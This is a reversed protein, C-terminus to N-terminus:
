SFSEACHLVLRAYAYRLDRAGIAAAGGDVELNRDEFGSGMVFDGEVVVVLVAVQSLDELGDGGVLDVGGRAGLGDGFAEALSAVPDDGELGEHEDESDELVAVRMEGSLDEVGHFGAGLDEVEGGKSVVPVGARPIVGGEYPCKSKIEILSQIAKEGPLEMLAMSLASGLDLRDPVHLWGGQDVPDRVPLLKEVPRDRSPRGALGLRVAKNLAREEGNHLLAEIEVTVDGITQSKKEIAEKM